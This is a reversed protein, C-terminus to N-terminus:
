MLEMASLLMLVRSAIAYNTIAVLMLMSLSLDADLSMSIVFAMAGHIIM